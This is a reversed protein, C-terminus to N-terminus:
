ENKALSEVTEKTLRLEAVKDKLMKPFRNSMLLEDDNLTDDKIIKFAIDNVSSKVIYYVNLAGVIGIVICFIVFSLM